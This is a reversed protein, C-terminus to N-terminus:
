KGTIVFNARRNQSWSSEDNGFAIPKEKGLSITSINASPVGMAVLYDRVVNARKEGLALNYQVGGREDCHGEIQIAVQSNNQLFSVNGDLISKSTDSLTSSNYAFSVTKLSGASGSDSDSNIMLTDDSSDDSSDSTDPAESSARQNSSCGTALLLSFATFFTVFFKTVQLM